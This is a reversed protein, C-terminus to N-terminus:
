RNSRRSFTGDSIYLSMEVTIYAVVYSRHNGVLQWLLNVIDATINLYRWPINDLKHFINKNWRFAKNREQSIGIKLNKETGKWM